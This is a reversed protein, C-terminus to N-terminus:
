TKKTQKEFFNKIFGFAGNEARVRLGGFVLYAPVLLMILWIYGINRNRKETEGLERAILRL